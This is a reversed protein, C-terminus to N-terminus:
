VLMLSWWPFTLLLVTLVTAVWLVLKESRRNGPAECSAAHAAESADAAGATQRGQWGPAQKKGYVIYFGVGLFGLAIVTFLPRLPTFMSALGAGVGFAVFLLPSVCCLAAFFAAGVAGFPALLNRLGASRATSASRYDTNLAKDSM